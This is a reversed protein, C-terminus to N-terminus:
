LELGMEEFYFVIPKEVIEILGFREATRFNVSQKRGREVQKSIESRFSEVSYVGKFLNCPACAPVMNDISDRDEHLMEGTNVSIPQKLGNHSNPYIFRSERIVPKFHDVHWGKEPLDCGCYWCKGNSKDRVKQRQKKTLAM